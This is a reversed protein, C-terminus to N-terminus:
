PVPVGLSIRRRNKFPRRSRLHITGRWAAPRSQPCPLTLRALQSSSREAGVRLLALSSGHSPSFILLNPVSHIRKASHHRFRDVAHASEPHPPLPQTVIDGRRHAGAHLITRKQNRWRMPVQHLVAPPSDLLRCSREPAKRTP